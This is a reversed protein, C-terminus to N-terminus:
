RPLSQLARAIDWKRHNDFSDYRVDVLLIRANPLTAALMTGFAPAAVDDPLPNLRYDVAIAGPYYRDWQWVSLPELAQASRQLSNRLLDDSSVDEKTPPLEVSLASAAGSWSSRTLHLREGRISPEWGRPLHLVLGNAVRHESARGQYARWASVALATILSFLAVRRLETWTLLMAPPATAENESGVRPSLRDRLAIALFALLAVAIAGAVALNQTSRLWAEQAPWLLVVILHASYAAAVFWTRRRSRSADGLALSLLL